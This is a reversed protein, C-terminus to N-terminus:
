MNNNCNPPYLEINLLQESAFWIQPSYADGAAEM